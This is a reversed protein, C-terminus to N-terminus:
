GRGPAATRRGFGGSARQVANVRPPPVWRDNASGATHAAAPRASPTQPYPGAAHLSAANGGKLGISATSPTAGEPEAQRQTDRGKPGEGRPSRGFIACFVIVGGLVIWLWAAWSASPTLLFSPREPIDARGASALLLRLQPETLRFYRSGTGSYAVWEGGTCGNFKYGLNIHLGKGDRTPLRMSPPTEVVTVLHEGTCPIPLGAVAETMMCFTTMLAIALAAWNRVM